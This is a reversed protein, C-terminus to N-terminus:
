AEKFTLLKDRYYEYQKRRAEIEAPLGESIDNCLKDFRDLISVIREQEEISPVPVEIRNFDKLNLNDRDGKIMSQIQKKCANSNLFYCLYKPMIATTDNIRSVITAFGLSGVLSEDILASTGVDGTHVTIIDNLKHRRGENKKAFEYDLFVPKSFIFQNERICSNHILPVGNAVYHKTMTTVLGIYTIAIEPIKKKAVSENFSFLSGRYYEYQKKRATLEKELEQQLATISETYKDLIKVIEAQVEIPPVPIVLNEIFTRSLRPISAKRVKSVLFSQNKMLVFYLYRNDLEQPCVFYYCDDAAWFDVDSFGIEGAAGAGIVFASYAKVNAKDNFGLPKLSNQYVPIEGETMLQERVVRVGRAVKVIESLKKYEVGNPCLEKILQELKTMM